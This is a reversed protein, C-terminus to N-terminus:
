TVVRKRGYGKWNSITTILWLSVQHSRYTLILSSIRYFATGAILFSFDLFRFNTGWSFIQYPESINTVLAIKIFCDLNMTVHLDISFLYLLMVCRQITLSINCSPFDSMRVGRRQIMM